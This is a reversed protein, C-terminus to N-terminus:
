RYIEYHKKINERLIDDYSKSRKEMQAAMMSEEAKQTQVKVRELLKNALEPSLKEKGIYLDPTPAAPPAAGEELKEPAQAKPTNAREKSLLKIGTIGASTTHIMNLISSQFSM